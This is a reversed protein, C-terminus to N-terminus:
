DVAVPHLRFAHLKVSARVSISINLQDAPQAEQCDAEPAAPLRVINLPLRERHANQLAHPLEQKPPMQERVDLLHM